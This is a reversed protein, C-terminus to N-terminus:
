MSHRHTRHHSRRPSPPMLVHDIVHIVGNDAAVDAQIVRANNIMVTQDTHTVKLQSGALSAVFSPSKMKLVDAAGVKGSVVHYKLINALKDKNEPKLLMALTKKPVKAFAADTPAFVTLPGSGTLAEELGAAKVAAILTKFKGAKEATELLNDASARVVTGLSLSFLVVPLLALKALSKM